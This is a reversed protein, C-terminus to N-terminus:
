TRVPCSSQWAKQVLPWVSAPTLHDMCLHQDRLCVPTDFRAEHCGTCRHDSSSVWVHSARPAWLNRPSAGIGESDTGFLAVTPCGAAAALHM